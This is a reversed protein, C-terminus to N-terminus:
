PGGTIASTILNGGVALIVGLVSLSIATWTQARAKRAQETREAGEKRVGALEVNFAKHEADKETEMTKITTRLEGIERGQARFREEFNAKEVQWVVLALYSKRDERVEQTLNRVLRGLEGLTM